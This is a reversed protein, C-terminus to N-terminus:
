AKRSDGEKRWYANTGITSSSIERFKRELEVKAKVHREISNRLVEPTMQSLGKVVLKVADRDDAGAGQAAGAEDGSEKEVKGVVEGLCEQLLINRGRLMKSIKAEIAKRAEAADAKSAVKLDIRLLHLVYLLELLCM